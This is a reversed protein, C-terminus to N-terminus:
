VLLAAYPVVLGYGDPPLSLKLNSACNIPAGGECIERLRYRNHSITPKLRYGAFWLAAILEGNGIWERPLGTENMHFMETFGKLQYSATKTSICKQPRAYREIFALCLAVAPLRVQWQPSVPKAMLGRQELYLPGIPRRHLLPKVGLLKDAHEGKFTMM